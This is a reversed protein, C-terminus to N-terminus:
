AGDVADGPVWESAVLGPRSSSIVCVGVVPVVTTLKRSSRAIASQLLRFASLLGDADDDLFCFLASAMASGV